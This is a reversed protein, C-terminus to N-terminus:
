QLFNLIVNNTITSINSDVSLSGTYTISGVSFVKSGSISDQYFIMDAGGNNPNQGQALIQINQPSYPSVKDTEHGSAGSRNLSVEGILDGQNLNTNDFVWHNPLLVSYPAYTGYGVETYHIGLVASEPKGLDRWMGGKGSDYLHTDGQKKVEIRNFALAVRWYVGNAGLYMLNGGNELYDTLHQYMETTWYEPHCNLILVKYNDLLSADNHLDIDAIVDYDHGM